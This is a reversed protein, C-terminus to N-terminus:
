RRIRDEALSVNIEYQAMKNGNGRFTQTDCSSNTVVVDVIEGTNLDELMARTTGLLHHMKSSQEDTLLGTRLVWKKTVENAYVVKSDNRKIEARKYDEAVSCRGLMVLSDWGGFTNVYHLVYDACTNKVRWSRSENNYDTSAAIQSKGYIASPGLCFTKPGSDYKLDSVSGGSFAVIDIKSTKEWFTIFLHQRPDLLPVIPDSAIARYQMYSYDAVVDFAETNYNNLNKATFVDTTVRSEPTAVVGGAIRLTRDGSLASTFIDNLRIDIYSNYDTSRTATGRYIEEGLSNYIVFPVSAGGISWVIDQWLPIKAM